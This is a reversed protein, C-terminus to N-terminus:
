SLSSCMTWSMQQGTHKISDTIDKIYIKPFHRNYSQFTSNNKKLRIMLVLWHYYDKFNIIVQFGTIAVQHMSDNVYKLVTLMCDLAARLDEAGQELSSYKLMEKLLLQYKTIRQVPKLLYASLPLKHGLSRQCEQSSISLYLPLFSTLTRHNTNAAFLM